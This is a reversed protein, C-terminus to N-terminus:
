YNSDGKSLMARAIAQLLVPATPGGPSMHGVRGSTDQQVEGEAAYSSSPNADEIISSCGARPAAPTTSDARSRSYGFLDNQIWAVLSKRAPPLDMLTTHDPASSTLGRNAPSSDAECVQQQKAPLKFAFSHHPDDTASPRAALNDWHSDLGCKTQDSALHHHPESGMLSLTSLRRRRLILFIALFALVSSAGVVIGALAGPNSQAWNTKGNSLSVINVPPGMFISEVKGFPPSMQDISGIDAPTGKPNFSTDQTPKTPGHLNSVPTRGQSIPGPLSVNDVALQLVQLQSIM